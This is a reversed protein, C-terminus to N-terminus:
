DELGPAPPACHGSSEASIHSTEPPFYGLGMQAAHKWSAAYDRLRVFLNAWVSTCTSPAPFVNPPSPTTTTAAASSPHFNSFRYFVVIANMQCNNQVESDKAIRIQIM